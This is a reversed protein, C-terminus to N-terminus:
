VSASRILSTLIFVQSYYSAYERDEDIEYVQCRLSRGSEGFLAPCGRWLQVCNNEANARRNAFNCNASTRVRSVFKEMGPLGGRVLPYHLLKALPSAWRGHACIWYLWTLSGVHIGVRSAELYEDGDRFQGIYIDADEVKDVVEGKMQVVVTAIVSKLRPSLELDEGLRIKKREFVLSSRKPSPPDLAMAGGDHAHSYTLDPGKPLPVPEFNAVREIEPNPLLYPAEDIRRGLKLCDDFWHPLVIKVSM